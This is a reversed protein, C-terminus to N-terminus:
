VHHKGLALHLQAFEGLFDADGYGVEGNQFRALGLGDAKRSQIGDAFMQVARGSVNQLIPFFFLPQQSKAKPQQSWQNM